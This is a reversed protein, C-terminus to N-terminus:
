KGRVTTADFVDKGLKLRLEIDYHLEVRRLHRRRPDALLWAPDARRETVRAGIRFFRWYDRWDDYRPLYTIRVRGEPDGAVYVQDVFTRRTVRFGVYGQLLTIDANRGIAMAELKKFPTGQPGSITVQFRDISFQM